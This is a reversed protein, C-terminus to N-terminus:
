LEGTPNSLQCSPSQSDRYIAMAQRTRAQAVITEPTSIRVPVESIAASQPRFFFVGDESGDMAGCLEAPHALWQATRHRPFVPVAHM